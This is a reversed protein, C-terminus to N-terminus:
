IKFVSQPLKNEIIFDKVSILLDKLEKRTFNYDEEELTNIDIELYLGKYTNEDKKRLSKINILKNLQYPGLSLNEGETIDITKAEQFTKEKLLKDKLFDAINEELESFFGVVFGMRKIRTHNFGLFLTYIKEACDLYDEIIDEFKLKEEGKKLNFFLNVKSLSIELSYSSDTNKLIIRPIGSPADTPIPLVIPEDNFKEKLKDHLDKAFSLRDILNFDSLFLAIQINTLRFDM